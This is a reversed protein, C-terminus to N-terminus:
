REGGALPRLYIRRAIEDELALVTRDVEVVLSPKRQRLSLVSGLAVGLDALQELREGRRPAMLVVKGREGPTLDSLRCILSSVRRSLKSCCPGPPISRGHPCVPPHGLFSCVAETAQPSLAHELRCAESEAVEMSLELVEHLLVEALRHRRVVESAERRGTETLGLTGGELKVLGERILEEIVAGWAEGPGAHITQSLESPTLRVGAEGGTWLEELVEERAAAASRTGIMPGEIMAEGM